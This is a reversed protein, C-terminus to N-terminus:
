EAAPQSRFLNGTIAVTQRLESLAPKMDGCDIYDYHRTRAFEGLFTWVARLPPVTDPRGRLSLNNRLWRVDGSLWRTRVGTRYSLAPRVPQGSAWQWILWPFDVGSKTANELTGALRANIEMLLPRGGADRRWEVECPGDLGIARVLSVSEDLIDAPVAFSERMVSVGGLLPTTRHAIAGCIGLLEGDAMLLTVGERRGSAWQQALVECGTALFRTTARVAEARSIVEVPFVRDTGEGTWSITPKVVFPYGFEAEAAQVGEAGTVRVSRPYEIGLRAAVELTLSKDNAVKLAEDSAMALVCGLAAFRERYPALAVISADGTPLVVTVHHHRVFAIIAEAYPAADSVYDPLAVTRACYRSAFAPPALNFRFQGVSEGVAVRLGARGLSRASTLAQKCEGDLILIDYSENERGAALTDGALQGLRTGFM